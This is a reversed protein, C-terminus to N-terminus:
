LIGQRSRSITEVQGRVKAQGPHAATPLEPSPAYSGRVRLSGSAGDGQCERPKLGSQPAWASSCAALGLRAWNRGKDRYRGQAAHSRMGAGRAQLTQGSWAPVLVEWSCCSGPLPPSTGLSLGQPRIHWSSYGDMACISFNLRSALTVVLAESLLGRHEHCAGPLLGAGKGRGPRATADWNSYTNTEMRVGCVSPSPRSRVSPWKMYMDQSFGDLVPLHVPGPACYTSPEWTASVLQTDM